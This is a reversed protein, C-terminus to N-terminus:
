FNYSIKFGSELQGYQNFSMAYDVRFMLRRLGVYLEYYHQKQPQYLYAGGLLEQLKLKRVLPIKNSLLTNFNHEFHGEFFYENTSYTYFDLLHFSKLGSNFVLSSNGIFHKWEPYYVNKANFFKGGSISYSGYGWLGMDLKEHQIELEAFNYDSQSNFIGPIGKRFNFIFRPGLPLKYIKEGDHMIFPQKITYILSANLFLASHDPFLKSQYVPDIPNNATFNRKKIDDYSYDTMNEVSFNRSLELGFSLYLNGVLERGLGASVYEKRYLKLFNQEFFLTNLTNQLTSLSGNPNLDRYTSGASFNFIGRKEPKYLWSFSIDSNLEQNTFGYRVKPTISWYRGQSTYKFFTLGYNIGLGEVTNYFLAPAVPQFIVARKSNESKWILDSFLLPFISRKKKQRDLSDIITEKEYKEVNKEDQYKYSMREQLTLPVARHMKFLEQHYGSSDDKVVEMREFEKPPSTISEYDSFYAESTGSFSFNLADGKYIFKTSSPHNRNKEFVQKIRLSDIFNIGKSGAAVLNLSVLKRSSIAIVFEGEFTPTNKRKPKVTIYVSDGVTKLHKFTYYHFANRALPSVFSKDSLAEFKVENKTFDVQLQEASKFEWSPYEGYSKTAKIWEKYGNEPTFYLQSLSEYLWILQHNQLKVYKAVSKGLITHPTKDLILTNKLYAQTEFGNKHNTRQIIRTDKIFQNVWKASDQKQTAMIYCPALLLLLSCYIKNM